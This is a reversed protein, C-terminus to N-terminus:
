ASIAAPYPNKTTQDTRPLPDTLTATILPTLTPLFSESVDVPRRLVSAAYLLDAAEQQEAALEPGAPELRWPLRALATEWADVSGGVAEVTLHAAERPNARAWDDAQRLAGVVAAVADPRSEAFDRRALFLSRDSVVGATRALVRVRESSEAKVLDAGQAVWAAIEGSRLWKVAERGAARPEVDQYSLGAGALLKAMFHTHWTGAGFAVPRGELDAVTRVPHAPGPTGPAAVLLAGHGPRPASAAVHVVPLGAARAVLPATSGTGGFDIAGEALLDGTRTGDAYFYLELPEEFGDLLHDLRSLFFLSPSDNHVGIRITM